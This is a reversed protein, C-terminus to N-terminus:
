SLKRYCFRPNVSPNVMRTYTSFHITCYTQALIWHRSSTQDKHCSTRKPVTPLWSKHTVHRLCKYVPLLIQSELAHYLQTTSLILRLCVAIPYLMSSHYIISCVDHDLTYTITHWGTAYCKEYLNREVDWVQAWMFYMLEIKKKYSNLLKVSNRWRYYM